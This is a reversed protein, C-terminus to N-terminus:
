VVEVRLVNVRDGVYFSEGARLRYPVNPELRQGNMLFTGYSSRLDTVMFEGTAENYSVSCHRGSVGPTGERYAIKCNVADRGILIATSGVAFSIGNHQTSMSRVMAQKPQSVPAAQPVPASQPMGQAGPVAQAAAAQGAYANQQSAGQNKKKGKAALVFVLIILAVLVAAVIIVVVLNDKIFGVFGSSSGEMYKIGNSNLMQMVESSSVAYYDATPNGGDDYFWTNVGIVTDDETILPGGSNGHQIVADIQIQRVGTGSSTVLRSVTGNTVTSDNLGWSSRADVALNDAQGPYGVAYIPSGVMDETPEELGIPQRLNTPEAIKCVALDKTANHDVVYTDVYEEKDFYVRLRVRAIASSGDNLTISMAEGAGYELFDQVVHHNTVIYEPDKGKEGVFFGSGWSTLQPETDNIQVYTAIVAVSKRVETNFEKAQVKPVYIGSVLLVALLMFVRVRKGIAKMKEEKRMREMRFFRNSQLVYVQFFIVAFGVIIKIPRIGHCFRGSIIDSSIRM